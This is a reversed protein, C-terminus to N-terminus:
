FRYCVRCTPTLSHQLRAPTNFSSTHPACPPCPDHPDRCMACEKLFCPLTYM